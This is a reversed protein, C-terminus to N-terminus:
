HTVTVNSVICCSVRDADQVAQKARVLARGCANTYLDYKGQCLYMAAEKAMCLVPITGVQQAKKYCIVADELRGTSYYFDGEQSALESPTLRTPYIVVPETNDIGFARRKQGIRRRCMGYALPYM